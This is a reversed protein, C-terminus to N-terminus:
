PPPTIIIFRNINNSWNCNIICTLINRILSIQKMLYIKLFSYLLTYVILLISFISKNKVLVWFYWLKRTRKTNQELWPRKSDESWPFSTVTLCPNIWSDIIKLDRLIDWEERSKRVNDIGTVTRENLYSTSCHVCICLWNIWNCWIDFIITYWIIRM